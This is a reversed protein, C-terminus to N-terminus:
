VEVGGMCWLPTCVKEKTWIRVTLLMRIATWKVHIRWLTRDTIRGTRIECGVSTVDRNILLSFIIVFDYLLPQNRM